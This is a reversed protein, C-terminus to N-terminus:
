FRRLAGSHCYLSQPVRSSFGLFRTRDRSRGSLKSLSFVKISTFCLSGTYEAIDTCAFFGLHGFNIWIKITRVIYFHYCFLKSTVYFYSHLLVENM